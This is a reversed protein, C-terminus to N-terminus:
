LRIAALYCINKRRGSNGLAWQSVGSPYLWQHSYCGQQNIHCSINWKETTAILIGTRCITVSLCKIRTECAWLHLPIKDWLTDYESDWWIQNWNNQDQYKPSQLQHSKSSIQWERISYISQSKQPHQLSHIAKAHSSIFRQPTPCVATPLILAPWLYGM